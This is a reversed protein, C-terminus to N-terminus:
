DTGVHPMAKRSHVSETRAHLDRLVALETETPPPIQEVTDAFRISWGTHQVIEERTVGQHISTVVLEKTEPDPRMRMLWQQM